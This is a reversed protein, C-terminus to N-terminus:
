SISGKMLLTKVPAIFMIIVSDFAAFSAPKVSTHCIAVAADVNDFPVSTILAVSCINSVAAFTASSNIFVVSVLCAAFMVINVCVIALIIISPTSNEFIVSSFTSSAVSFNRASDSLANANHLVIPGTVDFM